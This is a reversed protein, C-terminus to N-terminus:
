KKRQLKIKLMRRVRGVAESVKREPNDLLLPYSVAEVSTRRVIRTSDYIKDKQIEEIKEKPKIESKHSQTTCKSSLHTNHIPKQESEWEHSLVRRIHYRATQLNLNPNTGVTFSISRKHRTGPRAPLETSKKSYEYSSKRNPISVTKDLVNSKFSNLRHDTHM